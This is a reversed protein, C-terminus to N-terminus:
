ARIYLIQDLKLQNAEVVQKATAVQGEAEKYAIRAELEELTAQGETILGAQGEIITPM